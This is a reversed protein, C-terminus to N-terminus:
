QDGECMVPPYKKRFESDVRDGCLYPWLTKYEEKTAGHGQCTYYHAMEHAAAGLSGPLTIKRLGNLNTLGRQVDGWLEFKDQCEPGEISFVPPKTRCFAEPPLCELLAAHRADLEAAKEASLRKENPEYYVVLGEPTPHQVPGCGLLWYSLLAAALPLAIAVLWGKM